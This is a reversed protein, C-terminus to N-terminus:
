KSKRKMTKTLLIFSNEMKLLQNVQFDLKIGDIRQIYSESCFGKINTELASLPDKLYLIM